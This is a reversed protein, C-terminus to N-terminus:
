NFITSLIVMMLLFAFGGAVGAVILAHQTNNGTQRMMKSYVWAAIGAALMLGVLFNPLM